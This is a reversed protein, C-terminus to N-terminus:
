GRSISNAFQLQTSSSVSDKAKGLEPNTIHFKQVVSAAIRYFGDNESQSMESPNHDVLLKEIDGYEKDPLPEIQLTSELETRKGLLDFSADSALKSGTSRSLTNLFQYATPHTCAGNMYRQQGFFAELFDQNTNQGKLYSLGFERELSEYLAINSEITILMGKM